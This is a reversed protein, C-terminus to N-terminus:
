VELQTRQATVVAAIVVGAGVIQMPSLDESLLAHALAMTLVPELNMITAASRAGIWDVAAFMAGVALAFAITSTIAAILPGIEAPLAAPGGTLFVIIAAGALGALAMHFTTAAGDLHGCLRGRMVFSGSVGLAALFGFGVGHLNIEGVSGGLALSLGGLAAVLCFIHLPRPRPGGALADIVVTLLPFTYFILVALSVPIYAFSALLSGGGVVYVIGTAYVNVRDRLKLRLPRRTAVIWGGTLAVLALYRFFLLSAADGGAGYYIPATVNAVSIVLAGFAAVGVGTRYISKEAARM